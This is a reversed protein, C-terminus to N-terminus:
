NDKLTSHSRRAITSNRGNSEVSGIFTKRTPVRKKGASVTKHSVCVPNNLANKNQEEAASAVSIGVVARARNRVAKVWAVFEADIGLLIRYITRSM